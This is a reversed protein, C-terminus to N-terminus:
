RVRDRRRRISSGAARFGGVDHLAQDLGCAFLEAEVGYLYAAAVHEPGFRHRVLRGDALDIARSIEWVQEIPCQSRGVPGPNRMALRNRAGLAQVATDANAHEHFDGAAHRVLTRLHPEAAVADHTDPGGNSRRSLPVLRNEGHQSVLMQSKAASTNSDRLSIAGAKLIAPRRGGRTRGHHRPERNTCRRVLEDFGGLQARCAPPADGRLADRVLGSTQAHSSGVKRESDFLKCCAVRRREFGLCADLGLRCKRRAAVNGLDLDIGLSACDREHLEHGDIIAAPHDMMLHGLPLHMPSQRLANTLHHHLM